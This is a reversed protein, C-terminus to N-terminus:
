RRKGLCEELAKRLDVYKFRFGAQEAADPLVRASHFLADALEGFALKLAFQPISWPAPRRLVGALTKTFEANTVPAPSAGNLPGEVTSTEAAFILLRVLDDIHIWSIWQRGSGFRAGLGLRFPTVMKALTGGNRGLVIGIRIPVVCLGFDRAKHAEEEWHFCLDALFGTGPKSEETLIEDGRSGYYGIASASVLTAPKHKLEGIASVLDRTRLIRSDHIRKKATATWRQAVPEGALHIVADLRPISNLPPKEGDKWCHFAARSDLTKSRARGLYNV